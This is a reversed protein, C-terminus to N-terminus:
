AVYGIGDTMRMDELRGGTSSWRDILLGSILYTLLSSKEKWLCPNGPNRAHANISIAQQKTRDKELM